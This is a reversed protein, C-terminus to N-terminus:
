DELWPKIQRDFVIRVLPHAKLYLKDYSDVFLTLKSQTGKRPALDFAAQADVANI